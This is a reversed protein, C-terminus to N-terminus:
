MVTEASSMASTLTLVSQERSREDTLMLDIAPSVIPSTPAVAALKAYAKM